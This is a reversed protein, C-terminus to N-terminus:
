EGAAFSKLPRPTCILAVADNQADVGAVGICHELRFGIEARAKRDLTLVNSYTLVMNIWDKTAYHLPEAVHRREITFGCEDIMKALGGDDASDIAPRQSLELYGAYAEDLEQRTPVMPTIRNWLLVLRGGPGLITAAKNLATQPQVWHFSQAFVVLDFSRGAPQWDEFTAQEVPIGKSAAVRAMRPDPEVAVVEAGADVLQESAIGTGAGVDLARVGRRTILDTILSRPYRPRYLDYQEAASGFAGARRRDTQASLRESM